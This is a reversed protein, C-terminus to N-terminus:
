VGPRGAMREDLVDLGPISRVAARADALARLTEGFLKRGRVVANRRAAGLSGSLLSNPSTSEVLTVCRDIVAEDIRDGHGLHLIASQTLSGLIKHTSSIVLDAGLSLAYARLADFYPAEGQSADPRPM